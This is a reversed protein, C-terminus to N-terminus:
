YIIENNAGKNQEKLCLQWAYMKIIGRIDM